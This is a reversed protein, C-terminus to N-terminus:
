ARPIDSAHGCPVGPLIPRSPLCSPREVGCCCAEQVPLLTFTCYHIQESTVVSGATHWASLRTSEERRPLPTLSYLTRSTANLAKQANEQTVQRCAEQAQMTM